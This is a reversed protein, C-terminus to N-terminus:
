IKIKVTGNKLSFPTINNIDIKKDDSKCYTELATKYFHAKNKFEELLNEFINSM